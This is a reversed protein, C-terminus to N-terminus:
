FDPDWSSVNTTSPYKKEEPLHDVDFNRTDVPSTIKPIFPPKMTKKRIAKWRFNEFWGHKPIEQATLRKTPNNRCLKRIFDEAIKKIETPFFVVDIGALINEFTKIDDDDKDAFLSSGSLMAFVIVGLSWIDAATDHGKNLIMEPANYQATGCMTKAKTGPGVKKAFGFDILKAYGRSDILVNELKLDRHIIGKSHMFILAETVCATYFKAAKHSLGKEENILTWLEGGLCPEMLLYLYDDDKFTKYLRVIFDSKLELMIDKENMVQDQDGMAVIHQKNLMKLAYTKSTNNKEQVRGFGGVGLPSVKCLDDLM